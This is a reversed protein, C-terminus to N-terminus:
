IEKEEKSYQSVKTKSANEEIVRVVRYEVFQDSGRKVKTPFLFDHLM